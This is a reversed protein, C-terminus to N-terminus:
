LVWRMKWTRGVTRGLRSVSGRIQGNHPLDTTVVPPHTPDLLSNLSPLSPLPSVRARPKHNGDSQGHRKSREDHKEDSTGRGVRGQGSRYRHPECPLALQASREEKPNYELRRTYGRAMM